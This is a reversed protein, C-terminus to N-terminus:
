NIKFMRRDEILQVMELRDTGRISFLLGIQVVISALMRGSAM